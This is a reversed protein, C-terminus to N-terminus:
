RLAPACAVEVSPWHGLAARGQSKCCCALSSNTAAVLQDAKVRVVVRVTFRAVEEETRGASPMEKKGGEVGDGWESLFSDAFSSPLSRSM